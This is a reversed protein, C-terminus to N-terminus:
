ITPMRAWFVNKVFAPVWRHREECLGGLWENDLLDYMVLMRGWMDDFENETLSDYVAIQIFNKIAEYRSYGSLKEPLKKM